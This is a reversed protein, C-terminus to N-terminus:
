ENPQDRKMQIDIIEDFTYKRGTSDEAVLKPLMWKAVCDAPRGECLVDFVNDRLWQYRKSNEFMELFPIGCHDGITIKRVPNDSPICYLVDEDYVIDKFRNDHKPLQDITLIHKDKDDSM